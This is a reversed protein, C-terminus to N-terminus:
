SKEEELKRNIYGVLMDLAQEEGVRAMNLTIDYNLVDTWTKGGTYYKYYEARYKDTRRILDHAQEQTTGPMTEMVKAVCYERPAEIYFSMVHDYEKLVYDACKGVIVCSETEALKRIIRSQLDFMKPDSVFGSVVPLPQRSIPAKMLWNTLYMGNLKEDQFYEEGYGSYQSAMLLIRHEYCNIGLRSALKIALQKGGSGFGRAITIVYRKM